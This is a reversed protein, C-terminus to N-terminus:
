KMSVDQYSIDGSYQGRVAYGSKMTCDFSFQYGTSDQSVYVAGGSVYMDSIKGSIDVSKLSGYNFTFPQNNSNLDFYYIGSPVLGDNDSNLEFNIERVKAAVENASSKVSIDLNTLTIVMLRNNGDLLGMDKIAASKISSGTTTTSPVDIVTNDTMVPEKKCSVIIICASVMFLAIPSNLKTKM